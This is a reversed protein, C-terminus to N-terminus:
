FFCRFNAREREEIGEVGGEEDDGGGRVWGLM